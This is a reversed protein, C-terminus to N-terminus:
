PTIHQPLNDVDLMYKSYLLRVWFASPETLIGWAMKMLFANNTNHLDRFGLEGFEKPM